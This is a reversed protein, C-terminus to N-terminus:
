VVLVITGSWAVNYARTSLTMSSQQSMSPRIVRTLQQAKRAAQQEVRAFATTTNGEKAAWRASLRESM